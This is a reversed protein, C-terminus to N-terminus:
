YVYRKQTQWARSRLPYITICFASFTHMHFRVQFYSALFFGTSYLAIAVMMGAALVLCIDRSFLGPPLFRADPNESRAQQIVLVVATVIAMIFSIIVGSSGWNHDQAALQISILSLLTACFFLIFGIFDFAKMQEFFSPKFEPKRPPRYPVLILACATLFLALLIGVAYRFDLKTEFFGGLFAGATLSIADTSVIFVIYKPRENPLTIKTLLVATMPVFAAISVGMVARGLIFTIASEAIICLVSGVIGRAYKQILMLM